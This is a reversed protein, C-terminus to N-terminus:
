VERAFLEPRRLRLTQLLVLTKMDTLQGTDALAALEALAIEVVTTAEHEAAVGGGAAIRDAPRYLALYLDIRETSIGPMTWATVVHELTGLELGAEELAERRACAAPDLDEVIGAVAELTEDQRTAFYPPARFQRVLVATRREADYPLVGAATGHDEIERRVIQGDPMRLTVVLYRAWGQYVMDTAIMQIKM